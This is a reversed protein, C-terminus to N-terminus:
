GIRDLLEVEAKTISIEFSTDLEGIGLWTYIYENSPDMMNIPNHALARDNADGISNLVVWPLLLNKERDLLKRALQYATSRRNRQWHTVLTGLLFDNRQANAKILSEYEKAAYEWQGCRLYITALCAPNLALPDIKNITTRSLGVRIMPDYPSAEFARQWISRARLRNGKQEVGMAVTSWAMPNGPDARLLRTAWDIGEDWRQLQWIARLLRQYTPLHRPLQRLIVRIILLADEARAADLLEDIRLSWLDLSLLILEEDTLPSEQEAM